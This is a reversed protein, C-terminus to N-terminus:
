LGFVKIKLESEIRQAIDRDMVQFALHRGEEPRLFDDSIVRSIKGFDRVAMLDTRLDIQDEDPLLQNAVALVTCHFISKDYLVLRAQSNSTLLRWTKKEPDNIFDAIKQGM